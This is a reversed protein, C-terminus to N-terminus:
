LEFQVPARAQLQRLLSLLTYSDKGGSLCVMIRDGDEILQYDAIAQGVQRRLRKALKNGDLEHKLLANTTMAVPYLPHSITRRILAPTLSCVAFAEPAGQAVIQGVDGSLQDFQPHFM